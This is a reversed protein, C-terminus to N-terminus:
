GSPEEGEGVRPQPLQKRNTKRHEWTNMRWMGAPPIKYFCLDPTIILVAQHSRELILHLQLGKVQGAPRRTQSQGQRWSQATPRGDRNVTWRGPCGSNGRLGGAGATPEKSGGRGLWSWGVRLDGSFWSRESTEERTTAETKHKSNDIM